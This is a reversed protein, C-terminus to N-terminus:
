HERRISRLVPSREAAAIERVVDLDDCRGLVTVEGAVHSMPRLAIAFQSGAVHGEPPPNPDDRGPPPTYTALLLAGPDALLREDDGSPELRFRFGPTGTGDGLPCGSQALAGEIRRHFVLGDYYHGRRLAGTRADRYCARGEALGVFTAVGMPARAADLECRIAGRDTELVVRVPDREEGLAEALSPPALNAAACEPLEARDCACAILLALWRSTVHRV